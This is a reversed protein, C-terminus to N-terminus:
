NNSIVFPQTLLTLIRKMQLREQTTFQSKNIKEFAEFLENESIQPALQKVTKGLLFSVNKLHKDEVTM